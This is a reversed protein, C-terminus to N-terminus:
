DDLGEKELDKLKEIMADLVKEFVVLEEEQIDEMVAQDMEIFRQICHERAQKGKETLRLKHSRRDEKSVRCVLHGNRELRKVSNTMSANSVHLEKAIEKQSAEEFQFLKDLIPFQGYFLDAENLIEEIRKRHLHKTLGIKWFIKRYDM